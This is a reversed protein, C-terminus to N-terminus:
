IGTMRVIEHFHPDRPDPIRHQNGFYFFLTYSPHLGRLKIKEDKIVGVSM